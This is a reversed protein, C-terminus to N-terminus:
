NKNEEFIKKNFGEDIIGSYISKDKCNVNIIIGEGIPNKGICHIDVFVTDLEIDNPLVRMEM